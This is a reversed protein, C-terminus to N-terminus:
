DRRNLLRQREADDLRHIGADIKIAAKANDVGQKAQKGEASKKGGLYSLWAVVAGAVGFVGLAVLATTM